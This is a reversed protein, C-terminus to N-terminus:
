GAEALYRDIADKVPGDFVIKGQDLWIARDCNNSIAGFDHSVMVVIGAHATISQMREHARRAFSADGAGFVEDVLLIDPTFQTSISFGLRVFMGSSYTRMPLDIFEGLDAFKIIEAEHEALQRRSLGMAYGRNYINERGTSEAEFGLGFDLLTGISGRVHIEGAQLPYVGALARLLSSKGAGNRGIIGVREGQHISFDVHSLATVYEVRSTSDRHGLLGMLGSKLSGRRYPGVPYRLLANTVEISCMESSGGARKRFLGQKRKGDLPPDGADAEAAVTAPLEDALATLAM